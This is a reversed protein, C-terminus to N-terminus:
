NHRLATAPNLRASRFAPILSSGIAVVLLVIGVGAYLAPTMVVGSQLARLSPALLLTILGGVVVGAATLRLGAGLILRAIKSPECGLALRIAFETQRATASYAIVGYLGIAALILVLAAFLGILWRYLNLEWLSDAVVQEMSKVNFVALRPSAERVASRVASVIAEPSATTRVLLSVGLDSAIGSAGNAFQQYIEPTAPRDLGAQRVDGAVGVIRGRNLLRGIPDEGPFFQRAFAQNILIDQPVSSGDRETPARGAQIPIRLTQFYGPTIARMETTPLPPPAPPRGSVEFAGIWGWNQLPLMNTIGAVEVGPIQEVRSEIRYYERQDALPPTLHFTMVNRPDLGPGIQQLRNMERVVLLAGCTLVFALAVEVIVLADRARAYRRTLTAHGGAEKVVAQTDARAATVAPALGFVLAAAVCIVFLFAFTWWDLAIEPARPILASGIRVLLDVGWVAVIAGAVGGAVALLLSEALFQRALRLRGAGLAARTTVERVRITMRGLLLNAVNACAAALVLAVAGFLLWLSQRIPEVVLESLAEVRVGAARSPGPATVDLRAEIRTLERGAAAVSVGPRLRGTVQALRGTRGSMRADAVWLDTRSEPLAGPFTSAAGYPFQFSLGMVGLITFNRREVVTERRTPDWVNLDLAIASGIVSRNRSFHRTWFGESIVASDWEDGARFTRGAIPQAGLVSFFDLDSMVTTLREAGSASALHRTTLEYGTFLEFSRSETRFEALDAAATSGATGTQHVEFVQVLRDPDKFPLPQLLVSNLISFIATTAGTAFALTLVAAATFVPSKLLTRAGFRVDQFLDETWRNLWM